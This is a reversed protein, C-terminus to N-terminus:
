CVISHGLICLVYLRLCEKLGKLLERRKVFLINNEFLYVMLICNLSPWHGAEKTTTSIM